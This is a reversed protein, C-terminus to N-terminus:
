VSRPPSPSSPHLPLVVRGSGRVPDIRVTVPSHPVSRGRSVEFTGSSLLGGPGVRFPLGVKPSPSRTGVKGEKVSSTQM